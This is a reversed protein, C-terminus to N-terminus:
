VQLTCNNGDSMVVGLTAVFLDIGPEVSFQCGIVSSGKTVSHLGEPLATVFIRGNLHVSLNALHLTLTPLPYFGLVAFDAMLTTAITLRRHKGGGYKTWRLM